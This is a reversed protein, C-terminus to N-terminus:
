EEHAEDLDLLVLAELALLEHALQLGGEGVLLGLGEKAREQAPAPVGLDDAQVLAAVHDAEVLGFPDGLRLRVQGRRRGGRRRRGLWNFRWNAAIERLRLLVSVREASRAHMTPHTFWADRSVRSQLQFM